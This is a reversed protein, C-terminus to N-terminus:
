GRHRSKGVGRERALEWKNRSLLRSVGQAALRGEQRGYDGAHSDKYYLIYFAPISQADRCKTGPHGLDCKNMTPDRFGQVPSPM